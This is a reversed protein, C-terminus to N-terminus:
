NLPTQLDTQHDPPQVPAPAVAAAVLVTVEVVAPLYPVSAPDTFSHDHFTSIVIAYRHRILHGGIISPLLDDSVPCQYRPLADSCPMSRSIFIASGHEVCISRDAEWIRAISACNGFERVM